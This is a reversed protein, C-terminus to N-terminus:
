HAERPIFGRKPTLLFRKAASFADLRGREAESKM